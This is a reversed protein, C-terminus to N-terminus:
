QPLTIAGNYRGKFEIVKTFEHLNGKLYEDLYPSYTTHTLTNNNLDFEIVRLFGSGGKKESQYDVLYQYVDLGDDNTRTRNSAGSYHGNATLFIQSNKSVFEDYVFQPANGKTKRVYPKSSLDGKSNMLLHTILITPKDKHDDLVRQAWALDEGPADINLFLVLYEKDEAFFTYYSNLENDSHGAYGPNDQTRKKGFYKRYNKTKGGMDHNGMTIGYPVDAEDLIRMAKDANEWQHKENKDVIDGLHMVFRIDEEEFKDALWKTQAEYIEPYEDSYVQTDPLLVIKFKGDGNLGAEESSVTVALATFLTILLIGGAFIFKVRGM